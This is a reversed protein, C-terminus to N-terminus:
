LIHEVEMEGEELPPYMNPSLPLHDVETIAAEFKTM